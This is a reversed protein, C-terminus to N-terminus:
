SLKNILSAIQKATEEVSVHTTDIFLPFKGRNRRFWRNYEVHPRIAEESTFGREAPRNRLRKAIEDDTPALVIFCTAEIEEPIVHSSLYDLPNLCSSFVLDRGAALRVAEALCDDSFQSEHDTGAYDWWNIGVEDTDICAYKEKDLIDELAERMTSKGAGCAGTIVFLKM